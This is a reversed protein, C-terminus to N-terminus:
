DHPETELSQEWRTLRREFAYLVGAILDFLLFLGVVNNLFYRGSQAQREQIQAMNHSTLAVDDQGQKCVAGYPDFREAVSDQRQACAQVFQVATDHLSKERELAESLHQQNTSQREWAIAFALLLSVTLVMAVLKQKKSLTM